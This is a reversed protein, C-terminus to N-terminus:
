QVLLRFFAHDIGQMFFTRNMNTVSAFPGNTELDIWSVLDISAQLRYTSAPFLTFNLGFGGASATANLRTIGAQYPYYFEFAGIDVGDRNPRPYGRQDTSPAGSSDGFDIAPSNSLLAMCPTPGTYYNLPGLKPDTYNYSSGGFLNASGDSSINFGDDTIPGFANGNTGGYALITNHLRLTGNTNAIQM